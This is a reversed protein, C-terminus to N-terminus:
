RQDQPRGAGHQGPDPVVSDSRDSADYSVTGSITYTSTNAIFDATGVAHAEGTAHAFRGTGGEFTVTAEFSVGAGSRRSTGVNMARLIDGNAATYTVEVSAQTGAAFNIDQVLLLTTRGLHSLQCTGTAVQRYLAPLPRPIPGFTTECQGTIPLPAAVRDSTTGSRAFVPAPLKLADAAPATPSDATCAALALALLVAPALSTNM